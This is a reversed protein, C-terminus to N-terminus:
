ACHSFFQDLQTNEIHLLRYCHAYAQCQSFPCRRRDYINTNKPFWQRSSNLPWGNWGRVPVEAVRERAGMEVREQEGQNWGTM